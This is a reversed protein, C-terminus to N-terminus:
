QGVLFAVRDRRCVRESIKRAWCRGIRRAKEIGFIVMAKFIILDVVEKPAIVLRGSKITKGETRLMKDIEVLRGHGGHHRVVGSERRAVSGLAGIAHLGELEDGAAIM